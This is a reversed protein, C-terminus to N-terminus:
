NFEKPKDSDRLEVTLEPVSGIVDYAKTIFALYKKRMGPTSDGCTGCGRTIDRCSFRSGDAQYSLGDATALDTLRTMRSADNDDRWTITLILGM